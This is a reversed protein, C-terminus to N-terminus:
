EEGEETLTLISHISALILGIPLAWWLSLSIAFLLILTITICSYFTTLGLLQQKTNM